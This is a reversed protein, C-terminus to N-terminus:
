PTFGPRMLFWQYLNVSFENNLALIQDSRTTAEVAVAMLLFILKLSWIQLRYPRIFQHFTTQRPFGPALRRVKPEGGLLECCKAGKSGGVALRQVAMLRSFKGPALYPHEITIGAM